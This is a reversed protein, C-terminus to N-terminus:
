AEQEQVFLIYKAVEETGIDKDEDVFMKYISDKDEVSDSLIKVPKEVMRGTSDKLVIKLRKDDGAEGWDFDAISEGGTMKFKSHDALIIVCTSNLIMARKVECESSKYGLLGGKYTINSASLFAYKAKFGNMFEAAKSGILSRDDHSYEGGSVILVIGEPCCGGVLAINNSVIKLEVGQLAESDIIEKFLAKNTTGSDLFITLKGDDGRLLEKVALNAISEKQSINQTLRRNFSTDDLCLMKSRVGGRVKEVLRRQSLNSIDQRVVKESVEYTNCIYAASLEPKKTLEELINLYRKNIEEAKTKM